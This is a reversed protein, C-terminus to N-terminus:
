VHPYQGSGAGGDACDEEEECDKELARALVEPDVEFSLGAFDIKHYPHLSPELNSIQLVVDDFDGDRQDPHNDDVGIELFLGQETTAWALRRLDSPFWDGPSDPRSWECRISWQPGGVDLDNVGVDAPYEGDMRASDEIIYRQNYAADKRLVHVRWPGHLVERGTM